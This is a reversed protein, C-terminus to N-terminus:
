ILTRIMVLAPIMSPEPESPFPTTAVLHVREPTEDSSNVIAPVSSVVRQVDFHDSILWVRRPAVDIREHVIPQGEIQERYQILQV